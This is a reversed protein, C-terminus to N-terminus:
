GIRGPRARFAMRVAEALAAVEPGRGAAREVQVLVAEIAAVLQPSRPTPRGLALERQVLTQALNMISSLSPSLNPM